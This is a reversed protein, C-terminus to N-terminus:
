NKLLSGKLIDNKSIGVGTNTKHNIIEVNTKDFLSSDLPTKGDNVIVLPIENGIQEPLSYICQKLFDPRDCTVIGVGYDTRQSM